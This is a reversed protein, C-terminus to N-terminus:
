VRNNMDEFLLFIRVTLLNERLDNNSPTLTQVCFMTKVMLLCDLLYYITLLLSMNSFQTFFLIIVFLYHAISHRMSFVVSLLIYQQDNQKESNALQRLPCYYIILITKLNTVIYVIHIAFLILFVSLSLANIHKFEWQRKM